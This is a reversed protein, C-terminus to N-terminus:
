DMEEGAGGYESSDDHEGSEDSSREIPPADSSSRVAPPEEVTPSTPDNLWPHALCEETTARRGPDFALMPLLFSALAESDEPSFKYKERLVDRLSWFNLRRIHKLEGSRSFYDRSYQGRLAFQRPIPGLLEMMLALHDEDRDYDRGSHPDFLFDGTAIEFIVCAVSWIDASADYGAGLIVEPGRYQRTQIDDTFHRDIWCANGFDVVKVRGRCFALDPDSMYASREFVELPTEDDVCVDGSRNRRREAIAQAARAAEKNLREVEEIPPVFLINEPKVDTHIIKCSTHVFHLGELIQKAINKILPVPAGRYNCRKVLSLLSKSLVEFVLCVHRGNPGTLEFHDILNVVPKNGNPDHRKLEM